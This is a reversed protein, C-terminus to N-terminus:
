VSFVKIMDQTSSAKTALAALIGGSLWSKMRQAMHFLESFPLNQENALHALRNRFLTNTDDNAAKMCNQILADMIESKPQM